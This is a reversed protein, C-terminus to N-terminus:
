KEIRRIIKEFTENQGEKIQLKTRTQLLKKAEEAKEDYEEIWGGM